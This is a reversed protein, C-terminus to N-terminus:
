WKTEKTNFIIGWLNLVIKNDKGDGQGVFDNKLTYIM